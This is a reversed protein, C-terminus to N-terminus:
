PLIRLVRAVGSHLVEVWENEPSLSFIAARDLFSKMETNQAFFPLVLSLAGAHRVIAWKDDAISHFAKKPHTHVQAAIMLRETRLHKMLADMSSEPIVFYDLDAIQEPKLVEVIDIADMNRRGLWLVVCESRRLGVAKLEALTAGIFKSKVNVCIGM